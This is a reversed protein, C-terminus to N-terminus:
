SATIYKSYTTGGWSLSLILLIAAGFWLLVGLFDARINHQRRFTDRISICVLVIALVASFCLMLKNVTMMSTYISVHGVPIFVSAHIHLPDNTCM